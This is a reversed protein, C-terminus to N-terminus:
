RSTSVQKAPDDNPNVYTIGWPGMGHLQVDAGNKTMAFHRVGTKMVMFSGVGMEHLAKDDWKEGIGM